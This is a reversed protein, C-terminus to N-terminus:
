PLSELVAFIEDHLIPNAAVLATQPEVKFPQRDAIRSVRGGAEQVLLVGAAVDWMKLKYEWYGDFRGAAVYALDLAAAGCRRIGQARKAFANFQRLNDHDSTHSDYPFGTALLSHNLQSAPSVHLPIVRGHTHLHAGGGSVATFCEDRLPDYVVGVYPQGEKLLAMSVVFVPMRHAFNTTGDLPDIYWTYPSPTSTQQGGEEGVLNHDPFAARLASTILQEARQDYETVLDIGSSKHQIQSQDIQSYYGHRLLDGAQRAIDVATTLFTQKDM